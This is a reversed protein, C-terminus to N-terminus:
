FKSLVGVAFDAFGSKISYLADLFLLSVVGNSDFNYLIM